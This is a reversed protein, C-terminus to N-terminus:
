WSQFPMTVIASCRSWPGILLGVEWWLIPTSLHDSWRCGRPTHPSYVARPSWICSNTKATNFFFYFLFNLRTPLFVCCCLLSTWYTYFITIINLKKQKNTSLIEVAFALLVDTLPCWYWISRKRCQSEADHSFIFLSLFIFCPRSFRQRTPDQAIPLLRPAKTALSDIKNDRSLYM